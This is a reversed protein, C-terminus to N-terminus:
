RTMPSFRATPKLPVLTTSPQIREGPCRSFM